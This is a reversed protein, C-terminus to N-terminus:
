AEDSSGMGSKGLVQSMAFYSAEMIENLANMVAQRKDGKDYKAMLRKVIPMMSSAISGEVSHTGTGMLGRSGALHQMQMPDDKGSDGSLMKGFKDLGVRGFTRGLKPVDDGALPKDSSLFENITKRAQELEWDQYTKM